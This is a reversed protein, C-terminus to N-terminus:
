SRSGFQQALVDATETFNIYDRLRRAAKSLDVYSSALRLLLGCRLNPSVNDGGNVVIRGTRQFIIVM